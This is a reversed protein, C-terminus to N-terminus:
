HRHSTYSHPGWALRELMRTQFRGNFLLLVKVSRRPPNVQSELRSMYLYIYRASSHTLVQCSLGYDCMVPQKGEM